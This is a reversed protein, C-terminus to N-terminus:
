SVKQWPECNNTEFAKVGKGIEVVMPENANASGFDIIDSNSSAGKRTTWSCFEILGQQAGQSRYTGPQIDVGVIHTGSGIGSPKPATYTPAQTRFTPPQYTVTPASQRVAPEAESGGTAGAIALVLLLAAGGGVWWPWKPGKRKIPEGPPPYGPYDHGHPPLQRNM